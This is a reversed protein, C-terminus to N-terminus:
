QQKFSCVLAPAQFDTAPYDGEAKVFQNLFTPVKASNEGVLVEHGVNGPHLGIVSRPPGSRTFGNHTLVGCASIRHISEDNQANDGVPLFDPSLPM